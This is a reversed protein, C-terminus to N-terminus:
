SFLELKVIEDKRVSTSIKTQWEEVVNLKPYPLTFIEFLKEHVLMKARELQLLIQQANSYLAEFIWDQSKNIYKKPL